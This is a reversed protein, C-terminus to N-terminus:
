NINTLTKLKKIKNGLSDYDQIGARIEYLKTGDETQLFLYNYFDRLIFTMYSVSKNLRFLMAPSLLDEKNNILNNISEIQQLKIKQLKELAIKLVLDKINTVNYKSYIDNFTYNIINKDEIKSIDEGIILLLFKFINIIEIKQENSLLKKEEDKTLFNLSNQMITDPVFPKLDYKNIILTYKKYEDEYNSLLQKKLENKDFINYLEKNIYIFKIKSKIDFFGSNLLKYLAFVKKNSFNIIEKNNLNNNKSKESQFSSVKKESNKIQSNNSGFSGNNFINPSDINKNGFSGDFIITEKSKIEEKIEKGKPSLNLEKENEKKNIQNILNEKFSLNKKEEQIQNIKEVKNELDINTKNKRKKLITSKPTKPRERLKSKKPSLKVIKENEIKKEKEKEIEKKVKKKLINLNEFSKNPKLKKQIITKNEDIKNIMKNEHKIENKNEHKIENKNEIKNENKNEIKNEQKTEHKNEIKNEHKTEIKIETKNEDHMNTKVNLVKNLNQNQNKNVKRKMNIEPTVPRQNINIKEKEKEKERKTERQKRFLNDQSKTVQLHKKPTNKKLLSESNTYKLIDLLSEAEKKLQIIKKIDDKVKNIRNELKFHKFFGKLNYKIYEKEENSLSVM